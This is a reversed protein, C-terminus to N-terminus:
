IKGLQCLIILQFCCQPDNWSGNCCLRCTQLLFGAVNTCPLLCQGPIWPWRSYHGQTGQSYWTGKSSWALHCRNEGPVACLGCARCHFEMTLTTYASAERWPGGGDECKLSHHGSVTQGSVCEWALDSFAGLTQLERKVDWSAAKDRGGWPWKSPLSDTKGEIGLITHHIVLPSLRSPHSM